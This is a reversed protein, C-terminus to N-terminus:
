CCSFLLFYRFICHHFDSSNAERVVKGYLQRIEPKPPSGRRNTPPRSPAAGAYASVSPKTKTSPAAIFVVSPDRAWSFETESPGMSIADSVLSEEPVPVITGTISLSEVAQPSEPPNVDTSQVSEQRPNTTAYSSKIVPKEITTEATRKSPVKTIDPVDTAESIDQHEPALAPKKSRLDYHNRFTPLSSLNTRYSSYESNQLFPGRSKRGAGSSAEDSSRISRYYSKPNEENM